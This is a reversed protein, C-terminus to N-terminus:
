AASWTLWHVGWAPLEVYLGDGAIGTGDREFMAGGALDALRWPRGAVDHWPVMVRGVSREGSLNVVVLRRDAGSPSQWALPVLARWREDGPWGARPCLWWRGDRFLPHRRDRVLPEFWARTAESLLEEPRRQLFVPVRVTRAELQGEHLLM